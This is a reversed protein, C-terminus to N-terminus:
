QSSAVKIIHGLVGNVFRGSSEGGYEKAIEIAENIAVRAPARQGYRVEYVAVRLVSKDVRAMQELPWQPAAEAIAADIAGLHQLVGQVLEAAYAGAGRAAEHEACLAELSAVPDSDAADVAFLAQMAITRGLRRSGPMDRDDEQLRTL